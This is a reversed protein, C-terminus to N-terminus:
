VVVRDLQCGSGEVVLLHQGDLAGLFSVQSGPSLTGTSPTRVCRMEATLVLDAGAAM